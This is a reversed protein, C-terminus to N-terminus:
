KIITRRKGKKAKKKIKKKKKRIKENKLFSTWIFNFDSL